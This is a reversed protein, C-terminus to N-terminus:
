GAWAARRARPRTRTVASRRGRRRRGGVPPLPTLRPPTMRPIEGRDNAVAVGCRSSVARPPRIMAVATATPEPALKLAVEAVGPLRIVAPVSTIVLESGPLEIRVAAASFGPPEAEPVTVMVLPPLRGAVNVSAGVPRISVGVLGANEALSVRCSWSRPSGAQPLPHGAGTVM